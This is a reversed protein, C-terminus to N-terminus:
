RGVARSDYRRLLYLAQPNVDTRKEGLFAVKYTGRFNGDGYIDPFRSGAYTLRTSYGLAVMGMLCFIFCYATLVPALASTSIMRRMSLLVYGLLFPFVPLWLRADLWPYPFVICASGIVYLLLSDPAKRKIWIGVSFAFIALAGV